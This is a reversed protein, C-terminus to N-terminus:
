SAEPAGTAPAIISARMSDNWRSIARPRGAMWRFADMYSLLTAQKILQGYVVGFAMGAAAQPGLGHLSGAIRAFNQRYAYDYPTLHAALIAQHTQAVRGQMAIMLSIGVSAGLNRLLAYLGTAQQIQDQRLTSVALTTLPVFIFGMCFGSMVLPWSINSPSIDLNLLSLLWTSCGLGLFGCMMLLRNDVKKVIRGVTLMSLFSGIGRPTM